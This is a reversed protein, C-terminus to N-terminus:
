LPGFFVIFFFSNVQALMNESDSSDSVGASAETWSDMNASSPRAECFGSSAWSSESFKRMKSGFRSAGFNNADFEQESDDEGGSNPPTLPCAINQEGEALKYSLQKSEEQKLLGMLQAHRRKKLFM